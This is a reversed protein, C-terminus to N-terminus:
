FGNVEVVILDSVAVTGTMTCSLTDHASQKMTNAPTTEDSAVCFYGNPSANPFTFKLTCTTAGATVQWTSAGGVMSTNVTAYTGCATTTTSLVPLTGASVNTGVFTNLGTVPNYGVYVAASAVAALLLGGVFGFLKKRFTM